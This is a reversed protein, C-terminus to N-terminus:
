GPECTPARSADSMGTAGKALKFRKGALHRRVAAEDKDLLLNTLCCFLKDEFNISQTLIPEYRSLFDKAKNKNKLKAYKKGSRWPSRYGTPPAAM